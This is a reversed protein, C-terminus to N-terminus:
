ESPPPLRELSARRRLFAPGAMASLTPLAVLLLGSLWLPRTILFYM